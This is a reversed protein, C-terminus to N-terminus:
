DSGLPKGKLSQCLTCSGWSTPSGCARCARDRSLRKLVIVTLSVARGPALRGFRYSKARIEARKENALKGRKPRRAKEWAAKCVKCQRGEFEGHGRRCAGM